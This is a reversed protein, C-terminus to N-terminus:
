DWTSFGLYSPFDIYEYVKEVNAFYPLSPAKNAAADYEPDYGVWLYDWGSKVTVRLQPVGAVPPIIDIDIETKSVAFKFNLTWGEDGRFQGSAGLFLLEGAAFGLFTANNVKGTAYAMQKVYAGSISSARKGISFELKPAVIDCGEITGDMKWAIVQRTNPATFGVRAYQNVTTRSQTIHVQGGATDFSVEGGLSAGDGGGGGGTDTATGSVDSTEFLVEANWFGGGLPDGTYKSRILNGYVLPAAALVANKIETEDNSRYAFYKFPVSARDKSLDIKRSDHTEKVTVAM